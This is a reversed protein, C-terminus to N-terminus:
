LNIMPQAFDKTKPDYNTITPVVTQVPNIATPEDTTFKTWDQSSDPKVKECSDCQGIISESYVGRSPVSLRYPPSPMEPKYLDLLSNSAVGEASTTPVIMNQNVKFGPSVPFVMSNGIISILTHKLVSSLSRYGTPQGAENFVQITFGDLLMFRRQEDMSYLLVRNYYELYTNMHTLLKQTLLRDDARPNRRESANEPTQVEAGDLIKNNVTGSFLLGNYHATSYSIKLTRLNFIVSTNLSRKVNSDFSTVKIRTINKRASQLSGNLSVVMRREGGGYRTLPTIDVEAIDLKISTILKDYIKPM